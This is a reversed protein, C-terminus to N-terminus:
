GTEAGRPSGPLVDAQPQGPQGRGVEDAWPVLFRGTSRDIGSPGPSPLGLSEANNDPEVEPARVRKRRGQYLNLNTWEVQWLTRRGYPGDYYYTGGEADVFTGPGVRDAHSKALELYPHWGIAEREGELDDPDKLRSVVYRVERKSRVRPRRDPYLVTPAKV